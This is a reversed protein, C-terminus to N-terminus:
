RLREGFENVSTNVGPQTIRLMLLVASAPVAVTVSRGPLSAPTV